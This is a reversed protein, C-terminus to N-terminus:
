AHGGPAPIVKGVFIRIDTVHGDLGDGEGMGNMRVLQAHIAAIAVIGNFFGPIGVNRGTRDAHVAVAHHELVIGLESYNTVTVLGALGNGPHLNVFERVVDIEVVGDVYVAADTAHFAVAVDVVHVFNVLGLGEAHGEAKVTMAVGGGMKTRRLFDGIKIPLPTRIGQLGRLHLLNVSLFEGVVPFDFGHM